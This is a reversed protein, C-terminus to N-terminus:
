VHSAITFQSLKGERETHKPHDAWRTSRDMLHVVYRRLDAVTVDMVPVDGLFAQLPKLKRQYSSLTSNSRGDAKTAEILARQAESILM